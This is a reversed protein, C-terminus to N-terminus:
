LGLRSESSPARRSADARKTAWLYAVAVGLTGEGREVLPRLHATFRDIEQPALTEAMAEQLTPALPNPATTVFTEWRQPPAPMVDVRLELHREGFGAEAAFALLDREDYDFMPDCEISQRAAYAANVREALDQVATVDHGFFLHPPEPYLLRNVPEYLSICGGSKLVRAFEAFARRKPGVYALVSRTTVVDVSADPVPALDEAPARIFRCREVVGLREALARTHELLDLSVDSFIVTGQEGVQELAGFAILGDGSGVDLVTEGAAVLANDLVRDRVASLRELTRRLAEPDGGHRRHLLWEAWQDRIAM